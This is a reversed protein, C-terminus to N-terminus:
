EDKIVGLLGRERVAVLDPDDLLTPLEDFAHFVVHDGVNVSKVDSGISEVIGINRVNKIDDTTLIVGGESKEKQKDLRIIVRDMIAQIKM